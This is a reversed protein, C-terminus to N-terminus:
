TELQSNHCFLQFNDFLRHSNFSTILVFLLRQFLNESFSGLKRMSSLAIKETGEAYNLKLLFVSIFHLVIFSHYFERNCKM